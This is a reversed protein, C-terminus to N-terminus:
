HNVQGIIVLIIIFDSLHHLEFININLEECVVSDHEQSSVPM